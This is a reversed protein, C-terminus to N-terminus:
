RRPSTPRRPAPSRSSRTVDAILGDRVADYDAGPAWSSPTPCPAARPSRRAPRMTSAATVPRGSSPSAPTRRKSAPPRMRSRTSTWTTAGCCSGSPAPTRQEGAVAPVAPSSWHWLPPRRSFASRGETSSEMSDGQDTSPHWEPILPDIQVIGRLM